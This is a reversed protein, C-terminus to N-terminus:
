PCPRWAPRGKRHRRHPGDPHRAGARLSLRYPPRFRRVETGHGMGGGLVIWLLLTLAAVALVVPVFVSAARDALQQVPARSRQARAVTAIIGSLLTAGGSKDVRLLFSGQRNLTGASVSSGVQKEVPLPEGSLMSEDLSSWGEAVSGDAPIKAGPLIRIIDGPQLDSVAVEKDGEPTVLLAGPPTLDLLERLASGARARGRAELWQGLLVLTMIASAAEFYLGHIEGQLLSTVSQLFAVGTGLVILSFMNLSRRAFSGLGKAWIPSGSWFVVPLSLILEVWGSISEPLLHFGMMPAMALLMLPLSLVIATLTRRRLLTVERDNGGDPVLPELPMGCKPCDGPGPSLIEPHMPCTYPTGARAAIPAAHEKGHHHHCCDTM